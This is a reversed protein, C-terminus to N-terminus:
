YHCVNRSSFNATYQHLQIYQFQFIVSERRIGNLIPIWYQFVSCCWWTSFVSYCLLNKFVKRYSIRKKTNVVCGLSRYKETGIRAYTLGVDQLHQMPGLLSLCAKQIAIEFDTVIKLPNLVLGFDSCNEWSCWVSCTYTCLSKIQSYLLFLPVCFGNKLEHITFM